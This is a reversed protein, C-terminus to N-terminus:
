MGVPLAIDGNLTPYSPMLPSCTITITGTNNQANMHNGCSVHITCNGTLLVAILVLACKM